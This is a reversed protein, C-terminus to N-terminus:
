GSIATEEKVISAYPKTQIIEFKWDSSYDPFEYGVSKIHALMLEDRQHWVAFIGERGDYLTERDIQYVENVRKLKLGL